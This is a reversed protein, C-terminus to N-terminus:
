NVSPLVLLVFEDGANTASSKAQGVISDGTATVPIFQGIANCKVFQGANVAAGAIAIAEGLDIVSISDGANYSSEEQVGLCVANAASATVAYDDGSGGQVVALGRGQNANQAIYTSGPKHWGLGKSAVAAM